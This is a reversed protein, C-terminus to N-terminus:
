GQMDKNLLKLENQIDMSATGGAQKIQEDIKELDAFLRKDSTVHIRYEESVLDMAQNHVAQRITQLRLRDFGTVRLAISVDNDIVVATSADVARHANVAQQLEEALGLNAQIPGHVGQQQPPKKSSQSGCGTVGLLLILFIIVGIWPVARISRM